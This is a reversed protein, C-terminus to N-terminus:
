SQRRKQLGDDEPHARRANRAYGVRLVRDGPPESEVRAQTQSKHSRCRVRAAGRPVQVSGEIHQESEMPERVDLLVAAGSLIERYADQPSVTQIQSRAERVLEAASKM